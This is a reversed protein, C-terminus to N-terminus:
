KWKMWIQKAETNLKKILIKAFVLFIQMESYRNVGLLSELQEMQALTKTAFENVKFTINNDM